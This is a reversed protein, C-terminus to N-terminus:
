VGPERPRKKAEQSKWHPINEKPEILIEKYPEEQPRPFMEKPEKSRGGMRKM